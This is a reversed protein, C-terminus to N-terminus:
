RGAVRKVNAKLSYKMEKLLRGVTTHSVKQEIAVLAKEVQRLSSRQWKQDSMPDGATEEQM